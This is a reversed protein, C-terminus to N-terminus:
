RRPAAHRHLRLSPNLPYPTWPTSPTSPRPAAHRPHHAAALNPVRQGGGAPRTHDPTICAHPLLLPSSLLPSSLLPSSPLPSLLRRQERVDLKMFVYDAECFSAALWAPVDVARVRYRHRDQDHTDRVQTVALLPDAPLRYRTPPLPYATAPLRYHLPEERRMAEGSM